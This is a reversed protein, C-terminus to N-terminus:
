HFGFAAIEEETPFEEVLYREPYIGVPKIRDGLTAEAVPWSVTAVIAGKETDRKRYFYIYDAKPLFAVVGDSWVCYSRIEKTDEKEFASYSAVFIDKGTQEHLEDMAGKQEAYDNGSTRVQLLRYQKYQPHQSSPLFPIWENEDTLRFAIGSLSRPHEFASEAIEVMRALGDQDDSGTLLLTDRNPVMVVPDGIVAHHRVYDILLMRSPDYNDRWPSSWVGSAVESLIHKTIARLNECAVEYAEDFSVEWQDLASQQLQVMSSPLDYVLGVGLFEALAFYPWHFSTKGDIKMRMTTHEFMMRNRIAPLLDHKASDFDDPMERRCSFWTKVFNRVVSPKQTESAKCYENYANTLHLTNEGEGEAHLCFQEPDYLIPEKEGAKEIADKLLQAFEDNSMPGSSSDLTAM